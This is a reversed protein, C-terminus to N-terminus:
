RHKELCEEQVNFPTADMRNLNLTVSRIGPTVSPKAAASGLLTSVDSM